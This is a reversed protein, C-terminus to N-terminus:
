VDTPCQVTLDAQPFFVNYQLITLLDRNLLRSSGCVCIRMYICLCPEKYDNFIDRILGSTVEHRGHTLKYLVFDHRAVSDFAKIYTRSEQWVFYSTHALYKFRFYFLNLKKKSLAWIGPEPDCAGNM